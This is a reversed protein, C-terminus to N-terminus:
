HSISKLYVMCFVLNYVEQIFNMIYSSMSLGNLFNTLRDEQQSLFNIEKGPKINCKKFKSSDSLM